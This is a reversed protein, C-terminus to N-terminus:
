YGLSTRILSAIAVVITVFVIVVTIANEGVSIFGGLVLVVGLLVLASLLCSCSVLWRSLGGLLGPTRQYRDSRGLLLDILDM